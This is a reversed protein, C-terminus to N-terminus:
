WHTNNSPNRRQISGPQVYLDFEQGTTIDYHLGKYFMDVDIASVQIDIAQPM